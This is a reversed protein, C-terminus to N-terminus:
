FYLLSKQGINKFPFFILISSIKQSINEFNLIKPTLTIVIVIGELSQCRGGGVKEGGGGNKRRSRGGQSRFGEELGWTIFFYIYIIKVKKM